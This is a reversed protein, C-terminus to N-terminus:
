KKWESVIRVCPQIFFSLYSKTKIIKKIIRDLNETKGTFGSQQWEISFFPNIKEFFFVNSYFSRSDMWGHISPDRPKLPSIKRSFFCVLFFIIAWFSNGNNMIVPFTKKKTIKTASFNEGKERERTRQDIMLKFNKNSTKKNLLFFM